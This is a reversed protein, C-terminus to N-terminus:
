RKMRKTTRVWNILFFAKYTGCVLWLHGAHDMWYYIFTEPWVKLTSKMVNSWAMDCATVRVDCHSIYGHQVWHTLVM